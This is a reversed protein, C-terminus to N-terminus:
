PRCQCGDGQLPLQLGSSGGLADVGLLCAAKTILTLSDLTSSGGPGLGAGHWEVTQSLCSMVSLNRSKIFETKSAKVVAIEDEARM